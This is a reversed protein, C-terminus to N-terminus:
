IHILSLGHLTAQSGLEAISILDGVLIPQNAHASTVIKDLLSEEIADLKKGPNIRDLADILNLFRLYASQKTSSM